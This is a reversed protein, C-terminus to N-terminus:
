HAMVDFADQEVSQFGTDNKILEKLADKNKSNRIFDFVQRVDTRFVSTDKLQRIEVLNIRYDPVMGRVEEPIDTFDLMDHLSRPGDWAEEGSYLIITVTPHLRSERRFGYLYEGKRLGEAEKRVQRRIKAAQKEYEGVDYSMNRLPISYDTTEQGEYGIVVYNTGFATKRVMDRTKVKTHKEMAQRIFKPGHVFGTQTDMEQLDGATVAQRGNFGIGNIIDAYRGDDSFFAKWSVDQAM